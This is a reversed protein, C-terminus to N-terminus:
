FGGRGDNLYLVDAEGNEVIRQDRTVTFRGVLDPATTPRGNVANVVLRGGLDSITLRTNPMDRITSTRYNAVYLDLDGDGDVDALALSMGAKLYNLPSGPRPNEFRGRGDNFLVVTGNGVSNVVLDLDGDGDLDAFVAGTSFHNTLGTGSFATVDEFRFDGRNRYLANPRDLGCFYLDCWGDGDVDGATVGSGNLYIQNTVFRSQALVNTFTIGTVTEPLLDFGSKGGGSPVLPARQFGEGKEWALPSGAGQGAPMGALLLVGTTLAAVSRVLTAVARCLTTLM